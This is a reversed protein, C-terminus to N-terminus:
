PFFEGINGCPEMSQYAANVERYPMELVDPHYMPPRSQEAAPSDLSCESTSERLSRHTRYLLPRDEYVSCRNDILFPCSKGNFRLGEAHFPLRRRKRGSVEALRIAEHEYIV